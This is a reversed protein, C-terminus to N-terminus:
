FWYGRMQGKRREGAAAAAAADMPWGYTNAHCRVCRLSVLAFSSSFFPMIISSGRCGQRQPGAPRGDRRRRRGIVLNFRFLVIMLAGVGVLGIIASTQKM